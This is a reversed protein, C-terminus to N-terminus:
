FLLCRGERLREARVTEEAIAARVKGSLSNMADVVRRLERTAIRAGISVFERNSIAIASREIERLPRLIGALPCRPALLAVAFLAALWALTVTATEWLQRYAYQPHIRVSVRGLQRWGSSILAEGSPGELQVLRVFWGPLDIEQHPLRRSFVPEGSVTKVEIAAFHGRDFVPNVITNVLSVDLHSMRSGLALALSTATENAHADLQEILHGRANSIYSAEIGFLLVLFIASIGTLLQRALTM